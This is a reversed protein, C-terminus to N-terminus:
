NLKSNKNMMIKEFALESIIPSFLMGKWSGGNAIFINENDKINKFFPTGNEHVSRIAATHELIVANKIEPFIKAVRNLIDSRSSPNIKEDLGADENTGGLWIENSKSRQYISTEKYTLDHTFKNGPLYARLLEGKLPSIPIKIELENNIFEVWPGTALILKESHLDGLHTTIKFGHLSQRIGKAETSLFIGGLKRFGDVLAHNFAYTDIAMNGTLYAASIASQTIRPDISKIEEPGIIKGSFEPGYKNFLDIVTKNYEEDKTDFALLIRNAKELLYNSCGLNILKNKLQKHLSMSKIASNIMEPPTKLLPNLNGANKGSANQGIARRDILGVKLGSEIFKFAIAAGMAGAGIVLIDFYDTQIAM